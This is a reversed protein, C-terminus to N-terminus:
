FYNNYFYVFQFLNIKNYTKIYPSSFGVGLIRTSNLDTWRTSIEKTICQQVTLGLQSNYFEQINMQDFFM